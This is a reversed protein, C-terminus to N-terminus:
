NLTDYIYACAYEYRNSTLHKTYIHVYKFGFFYIYWIAMYIYIDLATNPDSPYIASYIYIINLVTAM